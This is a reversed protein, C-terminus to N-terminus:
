SVELEMTGYLFLTPVEVEVAALQVQELGAAVEVAAAVLEAIMSAVIRVEVEAAAVAAPDVMEMQVMEEQRLFLCEM